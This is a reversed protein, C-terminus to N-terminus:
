NKTSETLDKIQKLWLIGVPYLEYTLVKHRVFPLQKAVENAEDKNKAKIFFVISADRKSEPKPENLERNLYVNEIAGKKWLNMLASAQEQIHKKFMPSEISVTDSVFAYKNAMQENAWLAQSALLLMVALINKIRM